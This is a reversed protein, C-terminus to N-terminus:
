PTVSIEQKEELNQRQSIIELSTLELCERATQDDHKTVPKNCNPCDM